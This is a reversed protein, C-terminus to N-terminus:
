GAMKKLEDLLSPSEGIQVVIAELLGTLVQELQGIKKKRLRKDSKTAGINYEYAYGDKNFDLSISGKADTEGTFFGKTAGAFFETLEASTKIGASKGDVVNFGCNKFVTKIATGVVQEVSGALKVDTLDDGKKLSGVSGNVRKDTVGQWSITMGKGPQSACQAKGLDPSVVINALAAEEASASLAGSMLVVAVAITFIKNM